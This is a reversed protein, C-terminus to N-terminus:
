SSFDFGTAVSTQLYISIFCRRTISTRYLRVDGWHLRMYGWHLRINRWHLRKDDLVAKYRKLAAM